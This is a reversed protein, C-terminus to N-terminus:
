MKNMLSVISKVDGANTNERELAAYSLPQFATQGDFFFYALESSPDVIVFGLLFFYNMLDQVSRTSGFLDINYNNQIYEVEDMTILITANPMVEKKSFTWRKIKDETSRRKLSRWLISNVSRESTAQKKIRDIMFLYDKFFAIEGTSWQLFRFVGRKEEIATAVNYVMEESNVLHSIAKVGVLINTQIPEGKEGTIYIPIDLTTPVLENAKKIDNPVLQNTYQSKDSVGSRSNESLTKKGGGYHNVNNKNTLNNISENRLDNSYAKNLKKNAIEMSEFLANDITVNSKTGMNQHFKKVVSVKTSGDHVDELGMAIRVFTAYERELAKNIMTLDPVSISSTTIVPFQM